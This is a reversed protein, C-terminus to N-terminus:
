FMVSITRDANKGGFRGREKKKVWRDMLRIKVCYKIKIWNDSLFVLVRNDVNMNDTDKINDMYREPSVPLVM